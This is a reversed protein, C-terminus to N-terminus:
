ALRLPLSRLRQKTLAFVANAVAPAIPATAPEGIGGMKAKSSMIHVAVRPMEYMRLVPYDHFNSQDVKGATLTLKGHLAASLGFVVSGQIQAEVALPNVVTGCDVACTVNHVRIQGHEVSVEAVQAVISGFSEHIALGRARGPPPPSSWGAKDAALSLLATHRPKDKILAMRYALPDQNAAHAAEDIMCEMAFATHTNGVSRWWLVPVATRPSHLSVRMDATGELYPSEALGEVSTGDIGHKVLMPEFPTGAVISQGVVVHDWAVPKGHEDLGTQIRHVYSPRYYGGRMDDERTWVVKVPVGAAKAVIVAESVFDSMPNARRGFGGGLFMTHITVQEPKIGLIHAAAGQDGTQFQTGTWIECKDGDIKVTCNLPEMPAHALYPFDYEAELKTKAAGLAAEVKGRESVVTGTKKATARFEALQKPTDIGGGEPPTWDIKLADRGLKAAWFHKAVVAVGNATPVVQEVGPIKLAASGDFTGLKAGFAPPRAVLAVRLGPFQVDLGFLAKGTIKEPTDLRKVPTGIIKWDKPDKLKVTKPPALAMAAQALKGYSLQDKGNGHVIMGRAARVASPAVKWKSAAARMLMERATAGVTRYRDFESWTTSSGGTMQIGFAPHAYVPAAPAHESRMKSWDCELEEAIVMALGTWIGQGMESHAIMVTVTDDPAIRLFANAPPLPPAVPAPAARLVRPIQFAIVLGAASAVSNRLLERRNM